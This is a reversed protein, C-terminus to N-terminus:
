LLPEDAPDVIPDGPSPDPDIPRPDVPKEPDFPHPDERPKDPDIPHPPDQVPKDPASDPRPGPSPRDRRDTRGPGDPRNQSSNIMAIDGSYKPLYYSSGVIHGFSHMEAM